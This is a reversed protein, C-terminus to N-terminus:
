GVGKLADKKNGTMFMATGLVEHALGSKPNRTIYKQAQQILAKYNQQQLQRNVDKFAKAGPRSGLVIIQDLPSDDATNMSPNIETRLLPDMSIPLALSTDSMVLLLTIIITAATITTIPRKGARTFKQLCVM